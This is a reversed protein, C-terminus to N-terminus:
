AVISELENNPVRKSGSQQNLATVDVLEEVDLLDLNRWHCLWQRHHVGDTQPRDDDAIALHM